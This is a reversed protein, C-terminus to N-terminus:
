AARKAQFVAGGGGAVAGGLHVPYRGAVGVATSRVAVVQYVVDAAGAPVSTDRFRKKGVTGLAVFGGQAGGEEEGVMRVSRSVQYMTGV